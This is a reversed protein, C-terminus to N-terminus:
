QQDRGPSRIGSSNFKPWRRDISTLVLHYMGSKPTIFLDPNKTTSKAPTLPNERCFSRRQISRANRALTSCHSGPDCKEAPYVDATAIDQRHFRQLRQELFEATGTHACIDLAAVHNKPVLFPLCGFQRLRDALSHKITKMKCRVYQKQSYIM